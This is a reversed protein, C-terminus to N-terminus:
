CGSYRAGGEGGGGGTGGSTGNSTSVYLRGPGSSSFGATEGNRVACVVRDGASAWRDEPV